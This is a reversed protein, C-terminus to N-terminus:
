KIKTGTIHLISFLLTEHMCGVLMVDGSGSHGSGEVRLGELGEKELGM